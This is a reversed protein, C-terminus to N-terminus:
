GGTDDLVVNKRDTLPPLVTKKSVGKASAPPTSGDDEDPLRSNSDTSLISLQRSIFKGKKKGSKAGKLPTASGQPEVTFQNAGLQRGKTTQM